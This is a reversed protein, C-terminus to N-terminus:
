LNSKKRKDRVFIFIIALTSGVILSIGIIRFPNSTIYTTPTIVRAGNLVFQNSSLNLSKGQNIAWAILRARATAIEYNSGIMFLEKDSDSLTNLMDLAEYLKEVCQGDTDDFMIYNCINQVTQEGLYSITISQINTYTSLSSYGEYTIKFYMYGSSELPSSYEVWNIGDKSVYIDATPSGSKYSLYISGISYSLPTTNYLYGSTNKGFSLYTNSYVYANNAYYTVDDITLNKSSTSSGLGASSFSSANLTYTSPTPVVYPARTVNVTLSYTVGFIVLHVQKEGVEGGDPTEEYTLMTGDEVVEFDTISQTRGSEYTATVYFDGKEIIIGPVYTYYCGASLNTIKDELINITITTSKSVGSLTYTITVVNEGANESSFGEFTWGNVEEEPYLSPETYSAYVKIKSTDLSDGVYLDGGTYTARISSLVKSAVPAASQLKYLCIDEQGSKYYRFRMQDSAKNFKLTPGASSKITAVGSSVTITNSLASNSSVLSNSNATAGIYTGTSRQLSGNSADLTFASKDLTSNSEIKGDVITVAVNNKAADITTLSGDFAVSKGENVILYKGDTVESTDMVKVYSSSASGTVTVDFYGDINGDTIYIQTSGENIATVLGSELDVTAVSTDLSDYMFTPEANSPEYSVIEIQYTQGAALTVSDEKLTFSTLAISDSVVCPIDVYTSKSNKTATVRITTSGSSIGKVLGTSSVSAISSNLSSYSVDGNITEITLQKTGNVQLNVSKQAVKIFPDDIDLLSAVNIRGAAINSTYPGYSYGRLRPDVKKTAYSGIGSATSTLKSEFQSPTGSPNKQKWLCAAGAVIPSSFSTGSTEGWGYKRNTKTGTTNATYVYGPALIDVNKEDAQTTSTNFNTFAALTDYNTELAGVGIVHSNCAPYSKKSTAENGAAAIVIIGKNYAKQCVDELYTAIWSEGEQYYGFGDTFSQAYAGLSMNIVDVNQEIAYNIASKLSPFEFDVKLALIDAEPAIGVGGGNNMPAAATTSTETGHSEWEGNKYEEDICSPTQSYENYYVNYNYDDVWETRYYRSSSLIASTGDARRYESHTYSFGDDIVAIKTGAGTYVNWVSEIDGIADMSYDKQTSYYSDTPTVFKKLKHNQTYTEAEREFYAGVLPDYQGRLMTHKQHFQPVVALTVGVGLLGLPILILKKM